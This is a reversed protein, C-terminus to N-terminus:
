LLIIRHEERGCRSGHILEHGVGVATIREDVRHCLENFLDVGLSIEYESCVKLREGRGLHFVGTNPTISCFSLANSVSFPVMLKLM